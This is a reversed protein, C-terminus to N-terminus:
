DSWGLVFLLALAKKETNIIQFNGM